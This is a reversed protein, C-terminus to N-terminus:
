AVAQMKSWGLLFRTTHDRVFSDIDVPNAERGNLSEQHALVMWVPGVLALAAHRAESNAGTAERLVREIAGVFPEILHEVTAPGVGAYMGEALGVAHARGLQERRWTDALSALAAVVRAHVDDGTKAADVATQLHREASHGMEVIGAEIIGQRDGFYHRMTSVSVGAARALERLSLHEAPGAVLHQVVKRALKRRKQDYDANRSGRPRGM